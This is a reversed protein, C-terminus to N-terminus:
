YPIAETIIKSVKEKNKRNFNYFAKTTRIDTHGMQNIIIREDVNSEILSSGYTKRIKHSSRYPIDVANCAKKLYYNFARTSIFDTKEGKFLYDASSAFPNFKRIAKLTLKAQAPLVIERRGAETKTEDGAAVIRKGTDRDLYSVATRGVRLLDGEVDAWKLTALEGVRLGCQFSFIIGLNALKDAHAWLYTILKETEEESFVQEEDTRKKALEFICKNLVFDAMFNGVSFETYGRNKAFKLTGTLIIRLNDYGKRTLHHERIQSKIFRELDEAELDRLELKCFPDSGSFHKEFTAKYRTYSSEGIEGFEIKEDLWLKFADKFYLRKEQEEYFSAIAALLDSKKKRRIQKRGDGDPLYTLWADGKENYWIRYNHKSIYYDRKKMARLQEIADDYDLIGYGSCFNLPITKKADM